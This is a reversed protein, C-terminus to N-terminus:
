DVRLTVDFDIKLSRFGLVNGDAVDELGVQVGIEDGTMAFQGRAAARLNIDSRLGARSKWMDRHVVSEMQLNSPKREANELGRSVCGFADTQNDGIFLLRGLRPGNQGAGGQEEPVHTTGVERFFISGRLQRSHEVVIQM